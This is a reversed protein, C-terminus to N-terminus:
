NSWRAFCLLAAWPLRRYLLDASRHKGKRALSTPETSVAEAVPLAFDPYDVSSADYCGYDKYEIGKEQLYKLVHVKLAYGGHDCGIAIM